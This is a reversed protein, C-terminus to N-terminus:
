SKAPVNKKFFNLAEKYADTADRAIKEDSEDGRVSRFAARAVTVGTCDISAVQQCARCIHKQAQSCM